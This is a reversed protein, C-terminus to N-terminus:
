PVQEIEQYKGGKGNTPSAPTAVSVAAAKHADVKKKQQDAWYNLVYTVGTLGEFVIHALHM